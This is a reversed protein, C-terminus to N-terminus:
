SRGVRCGASSRLARREFYLRVWTAPYTAFLVIWLGLGILIFLMDKYSRTETTVALGTFLFLFAGCLFSGALLSPWGLRRRVFWADIGRGAIWWFPICYIPFILARWLFLGPQTPGFYSPRWSDPWSRTVMSAVVETLMAPSNLAQIPKSLDSAASMSAYATISPRPLEFGGDGAEIVLTGDYVYEDSLDHLNITILTM